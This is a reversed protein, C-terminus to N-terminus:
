SDPNSSPRVPDILVATRREQTMATDFADWNDHTGGASQFIARLLLRVDIQPDAPDEPGVLQVPGDVALWHWGHHVTLTARRARRLLALKHAGGASV